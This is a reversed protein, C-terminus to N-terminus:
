APLSPPARPRASTLVSHARPFQGEPQPAFAILPIAANGAAPALPLAGPATGPLCCDHAHDAAPAPAPGDSAGHCIVAAYAGPAAAFGAHLGSIFTCLFLLAALGRILSRGDPRALPALWGRRM